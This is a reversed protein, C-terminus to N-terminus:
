VCLELEESGIEIKTNSEIKKTYNYPIIYNEKYPTYNIIDDWTLGNLESYTKDKAIECLNNFLQLSAMLTNVNLTGRCIRFEVTNKNCNNVVKYREGSQRDWEEKLVKLKKVDKSTNDKLFHCYAFNKRRSFRTLENEFVECIYTLKQVNEINEGYNEGFFARSIHFHLGCTSTDHSRFGNGKCINAIQEFIKEKNSLIYNITAPMTVIEFGGALSGDDKCYIYNEAIDIVASATEDRDDGNDVELEIGYFKIEENEDENKHFIPTPKYSYDRIADDCDDEQHSYCNYCYTTGNYYYTGEGYTYDGCEECSTVGEREMCDACLNSSGNGNRCSTTGELYYSNCCECYYTYTDRCDYCYYENIDQIETMCSNDHYTECRDCYAYHDACEECILHENVTIEDGGEIGITGCDECIFLDHERLIDHKKFINEIKEIEKIAKIITNNGKHKDYSKEFNIFM